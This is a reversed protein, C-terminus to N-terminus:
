DELPENADLGVIPGNWDQTAIASRLPEPRSSGTPM